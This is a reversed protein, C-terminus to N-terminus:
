FLVASYWHHTVLLVFLCVFVLCIYSPAKLIRRLFIGKVVMKRHRYISKRQMKMTM